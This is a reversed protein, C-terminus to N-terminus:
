LETETERCYRTTPPFVTQSSFGWPRWPAAVEWVPTQFEWYTCERTPAHADSYAEENTLRSVRKSTGWLMMTWIISIREDLGGKLQNLKAGVRLRNSHAPFWMKLFHIWSLCYFTIMSFSFHLYFCLFTFCHIIRASRRKIRLLIPVAAFLFTFFNPEFKLIYLKIDQIRVWGTSCVVHSVHQAGVSGVQVRETRQGGPRCTTSLDMMFAMIGRSCIPRSSKTAMRMNAM